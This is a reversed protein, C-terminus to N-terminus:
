IGRGRDRWFPKRLETKLIKGSANRPLKPVFDVTRPCKFGALQQRCFEIINAADVNGETVVIAKVSEGWFDDPVGIVAADEVAPHETLVSEVEPCYVNEGGTIIMDKIRDEIYVYGDADLRGIDGTRVWDDATITEATADPRNLYGTMNQNSRVWVEGSQGRPLQQATEPDVIRIECGQV